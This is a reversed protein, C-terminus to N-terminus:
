KRDEVLLPRLAFMGFQAVWHGVRMYDGNWNSHPEFGATFHRAYAARYAPEGSAAAMDWLSWARSFNMGYAHATRPSVPAPVREPPMFSALWARYADRPAVRSVLRAWNLCISMFGRGDDTCRADATQFHRGVMGSVAAELDANKRLRAYDLLHSLAWSASDYDALRPDPLWQRYHALLSAAALDGLALTTGDGYLEEHEIALRLYWARGYPMEFSPQRVLLKAEEELRARQLKDRILPEHRRDGTFRTYAVLAWVGHTASHWDVCGHFAAHDTDRRAVCYAAQGALLGAIRVRDARIAETPDQAAVKLALLASAVCISVARRM